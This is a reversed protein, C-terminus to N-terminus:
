WSVLGSMGYGYFALGMVLQLMDDQQTSRFQRSITSGTGSTEERVMLSIGYACQNITPHLFSSAVMLLCTPLESM